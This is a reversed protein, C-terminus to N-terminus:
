KWDWGVVVWEDLEDRHTHIIKFGVREHARISRPNRTAIETIFLDFQPQYIKKHHRYLEDSLGQGRYQKAVCIQGMVYFSYDTLPKDNWSLKDLLAFMPELDPILQRCEQLMTLAYAVVKNDDKIIVTPALKHMQELIKFDHHLTVFGQSKMEKEDIHQLLNEEQLKLIQQLEETTSTLTSYLM